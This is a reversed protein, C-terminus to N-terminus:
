ERRRGFRIGTALHREIEHRREAPVIGQAAEAFVAEATRVRNERLGLIPPHDPTAQVPREEIVRALHRLTAAIEIQLFEFGVVAEPEPEVGIVTNHKAHISRKPAAIALVQIENKAAHKLGPQRAAHAATTHASTAPM